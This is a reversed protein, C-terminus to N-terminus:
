FDGLDPRLKSVPIVNPPLPQSVGQIIGERTPPPQSAKPAPQTQQSPTSPQSIQTPPSPQSPQTQKAADGAHKATVSAVAPNTPVPQAQGPQNAPKPRDTVATSSLEPAAATPVWDSSPLPSFMPAVSVAVVVIAAVAMAWHCVMWISAKNVITCRLLLM